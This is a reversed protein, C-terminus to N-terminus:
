LFMAYTLVVSLMICFALVIFSAAAAFRTRKINVSEFYVTLTYIITDSSGMIISACRGAFSDPSVESLMKQMMATTGSGSIPRMIIIPLVENPIHLIDTIPRLCTCLIDLAGSASFMHVAVILLVLSPLLRVCSSFGSRAGSMFAGSADKDSTIMVIGAVCVFLPLSLEGIFKIANGYIM